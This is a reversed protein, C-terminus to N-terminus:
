DGLADKIVGVRHSSFVNHCAAVATEACGGPASLHLGVYDPRLKRGHHLACPQRRLLKPLTRGNLDAGAKMVTVRSETRGIPQRHGGGGVVVKGVGGLTIGDEEKLAAYREASSAIQIPDGFQDPESFMAELEAIRAERASLSVSIENIRMALRRAERNLSRRQEEETTM